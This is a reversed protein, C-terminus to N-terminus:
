KKTDTRTAQIGRIRSGTPQSLIALGKLESSLYDCVQTLYACWSDLVELAIPHATRLLNLVNFVDGVVNFLLTIM